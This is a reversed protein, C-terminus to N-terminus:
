PARSVDLGPAPATARPDATRAARCLTALSELLRASEAADRDRFIAHVRRGATDVHVSALGLRRQIPGQVRRLSQVKELPVWATTKRLRGNVTVAHVQDYGAALFHYGFPAKWVARRPPRALAPEAVGLVRSLLLNAEAATGVPLLTKTVRAASRRAGHRNAVGGAVDVELRRWGLPRWLLPEVQRVAQVRGRPITEATTQLLGSRVRLGDPAEAATFGFESFVRRVVAQGFALLNPTASSLIATLFQPAALALTVTAVALALAVIGVDAIAVSAILRPARVRLLRWEPPEPTTQDLGHHAALLRARLQTAEQEGLFALRGRTGGAGALRIRLEALGLMRGVLPQVLDVAQIRAVPLRRADRRLLGTTISLVEGDFRWRTVLVSVTAPVLLVAAVIAGIILETEAGSSHQHHIGSLALAIVITLALRSVYVIPSLPHLRHWAADGRPGPESPSASGNAVTV